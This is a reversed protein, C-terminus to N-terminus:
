WGRDPLSWLVGSYSGNDLKKWAGKELHISSGLGGLTDGFKDVADTVVYGYGALEEYEYAVGNCTTQNVVSSAVTVARDRCTAGVVGAALSVIALLRDMDCSGIESRVSLRIVM